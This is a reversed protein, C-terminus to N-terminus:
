IFWFFYVSIVFGLDCGLDGRGAGCRVRCFCFTIYSSFDVMRSREEFVAELTVKVGSWIGVWGRGSCDFFEVGM